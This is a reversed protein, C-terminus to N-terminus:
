YVRIERWLMLKWWVVVVLLIGYGTDQSSRTLAIALRFPFVSSSTAVAMAVALSTASFLSCFRPQCSRIYRRSRKAHFSKTESESGNGGLLTVPPGSNGSLLLLHSIASSLAFAMKASPEIAGFTGLIRPQFGRSYGVWTRRMISFNKDELGFIELPSKSVAYKSANRLATFSIACKFCGAYWICYAASLFTHNASKPGASGNRSVRWFQLLVLKWMHHYQGCGQRRQPSAACEGTISQTWPYIM